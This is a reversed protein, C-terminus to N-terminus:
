RLIVAAFFRRESEASPTIADVVLTYTNNPRTNEDPNLSGAPTAGAGVAPGDTAARISTTPISISAVGDTVPFVGVEFSKPTLVGPTVVSYRSEIRVQTAAGSVAIKLNLTGTRQYEAGTKDINDDFVIQSKPAVNFNPEDKECGVLSAAVLSLLLLPHFIKNM